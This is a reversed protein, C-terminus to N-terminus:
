EKLLLLSAVAYVERETRPETFYKAKWLVNLLVDEKTKGTAKLLLRKYNPSFQYTGDKGLRLLRTEVLQTLATNVEKKTLKKNKM